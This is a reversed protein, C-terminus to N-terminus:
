PTAMRLLANTPERDIARGVRRVKGVRAVRLALEPNGYRATLPDDELLPANM